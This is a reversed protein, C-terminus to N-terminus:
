FKLEQFVSKFIKSINKADDIGRHHTGELQIGLMKLAADMRCPKINKIKSFQHKISIHRDLLSIVQGSYKKISCEKLIQKKDYFGWSGLYIDESTSLVWQEFERISQNFSKSNDVNEQSISTLNKCFESLEQNIEPKVFCSFIDIIELSHNM